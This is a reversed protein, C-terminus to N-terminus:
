MCIWVISLVKLQIHTTHVNFVWEKCYDRVVKIKTCM